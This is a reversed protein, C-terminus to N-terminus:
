KYELSRIDEHSLNIELSKVSSETEFLNRPGILPFTPFSQNLVYALAVEIPEFGKEEAM